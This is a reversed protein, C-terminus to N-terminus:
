RSSGPPESLWAEGQPTIAGTADVLGRRELGQIVAELAAGTLGIQLGQEISGDRLPYRTHAFRLARVAAASLVPPDPPPCSM